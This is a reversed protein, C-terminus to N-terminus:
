NTSTWLVGELRERFYAAHQDWIEVERQDPHDAKKLPFIGGFGNRDFKSNDVVEVVADVYDQDDVRHRHSFTMLEDLGLNTIMEIFRGEVGGEYLFDLHDALAILMELWSCEQMMLHNTVHPDFNAEEYQLMFQKRLNAGDVARNIDNGVRREFDCNHLLDCVYAVEESVGDPDLRTLLWKFYLDELDIM